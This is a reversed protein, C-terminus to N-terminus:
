PSRAALYGLVVGSATFWYTAVTFATQVDKRLVAYILGFVLSGGVFLTLIVTMIKM